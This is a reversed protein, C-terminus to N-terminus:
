NRIVTNDYMVYNVLYIVISKRTSYVRKSFNLVCVLFILTYVKYMEIDRVVMVLWLWYLGM